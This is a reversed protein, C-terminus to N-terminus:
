CMESVLSLFRIFVFSFDDSQVHGKKIKMLRLVWPKFKTEIHSLFMGVLPRGIITEAFFTSFKSGRDVVMWNKSCGDGPRGSIPRMPSTKPNEVFVKVIINIYKYIM